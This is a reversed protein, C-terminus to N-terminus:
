RVNGARHSPRSGRRLRDARNVLRIDFGAARDLRGRRVRGRRDHRRHLRADDPPDGDVVVGARLLLYSGMLRSSSNPLALGSTVTGVVDPEEVAAPEVVVCGRTVGVDSAPLAGDAPEVTEVRTRAAVVEPDAVEAPDVAGVRTRTAVEDPEAVDVPPAPAPLTVTVDVLPAAVEDPEVAEVVEDEVTEVVLPEAADAPADATVRSTM